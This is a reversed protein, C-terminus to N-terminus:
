EQINHHHKKLLYRMLSRPAKFAIANMAKWGFKDAHVFFLLSQLDGWDGQCVWWIINCNQYERTPEKLGININIISVVGKDVYCDLM